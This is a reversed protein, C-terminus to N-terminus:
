FICVIFLCCDILTDETDGKGHQLPADCEYQKRDFELASRKSAQAPIPLQAATHRYGLAKEYQGGAVQVITFVIM